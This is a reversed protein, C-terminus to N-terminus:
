KLGANSLAKILLEKYESQYRKSYEELTFKPDIRLVEAGEAHADAARGAMSYAAALLLHPLYADPARQVAKQCWKIAEEYQGTYGYALGLGFLYNAPPIPNFRIAKQYEPIAEAARGANSLAYALTLHTAASNPNLAVAQEATEIAKAHKGLMSFSFALNGYGHPDTPDLGISKQFLATSKKMSQKPDKSTGLWIEAREIIGLVRYAAAYEPDLAISEQALQKALANGEITFKHFLNSAQLYKLYAELNNTGKAVSRIQEGMTLEVQLATIVDKTIEDQVVFIDTLDTDYRAAWLHHGTLADILQITIRVNSEDKRVSGELVYRIGLDEAIQQVKIPKGKYTFTSNRAIVFMKPVNSLATIIEETLGDSFYEQEPDSSLNLFPLVAISPEDPLELTVKSPTARPYFYWIALTAGCVFLAGILVFSLKKLLNPPAKKGKSEPKPEIRLRRIFEDWALGNKLDGLKVSVDNL